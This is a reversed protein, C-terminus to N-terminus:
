GLPKVVMLFVILAITGQLTWAGLRARGDAVVAALEPSAAGDPSAAAAQELRAVWPDTITIGIAVAAVFAVYAAILWPRLLDIQGTLAAIFGFVVGALFLGTAMPGSLPKVKEVTVRIARVDGTQAVRRMVMEGSLALAVAFFMSVVHPYKFAVFADM